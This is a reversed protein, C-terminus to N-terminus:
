RRTSAPSRRCGRCAASSRACRSSSPPRRARTAARWRSERPVTRADASQPLYRVATDAFQVATDLQGPSFDIKALELAAPGFRPSVRLAELSRPGRKTSTGGSRRSSASRSTRAPWVRRHPPRPRRPRSRRTPKKEALLFAAKVLYPQPNKSDAAIVKEVRAYAEARKEHAFEYQAIRLRAPTAGDPLAAVADLMELGEDTREMSSTTTPWRWARRSSSRTRTRRDGQAPREAQRPSGTMLYLAALTRNALVHGPSAQVAEMLMREADPPGAWAWYLNALGVRADISQPAITLANKFAAEARDLNGRALEVAALNSYGALNSPETRIAEEVQRAAADFDNLGALANALLLQADVNRVDKDLLREATSGRM